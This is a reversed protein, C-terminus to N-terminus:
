GNVKSQTLETAEAAFEAEPWEIWLERRLSNKGDPNWGMGRYKVSLPSSAVRGSRAGHGCFDGEFAELLTLCCVIIALFDSKVLFRVSSLIAGFDEAM